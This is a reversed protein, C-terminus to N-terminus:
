QNEPTIIRLYYEGVVVEGWNYERREPISFGGHLNDTESVFGLHKVIIARVEDATLVVDKQCFGEGSIKNVIM